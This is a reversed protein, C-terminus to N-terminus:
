ASYSKSLGASSWGSWGRVEVDALRGNPPTASYQVYKAAFLTHLEAALAESLQPFGTVTAVGDARVWWLRSWDDDYRDALLSVHPRAAINRLRRLDTTSKPKHDVAIYLHGDAHVFTVPVLHPAGDESVTGLVARPEDLFRRRAEDPTLRM